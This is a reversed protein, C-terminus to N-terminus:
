LSNGKGWASWRYEILTKGRGKWLSESIFKQAGAIDSFQEQLQSCFFWVDKGKHLKCDPYARAMTTERFVICGDENIHSWFELKGRTFILYEFVKVGKM